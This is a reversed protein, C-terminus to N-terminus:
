DAGLATMIGQLKEVARLWLMQAAPRSRNLRQAVQDFPLRQLNRLMIVERHEASLQALADALALEREKRMMLQSPTEQAAPLQALPEGANSGAVPKLHAERAVDRKATGHYDRVVNALNHKLIQRLWGLWEGPTSGRFREFGLHAELLTQQVLDSADVKAQLKGGLQVRALLLLYNRCEAFLRERAQPAARRAEDLLHTLISQERSEMRAIIGDRQRSHWPREGM